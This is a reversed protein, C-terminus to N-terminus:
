DGGAMFQGHWHNGAPKGAFISVLLCSVDIWLEKWLYNERKKLGTKKGLFEPNGRNSGLEL